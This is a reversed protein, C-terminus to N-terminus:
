ENRSDLLEVIYDELDYYVTGYISAEKVEAQRENCPIKIDNEALIEEFKDLIKVALERNENMRYKHRKNVVWNKIFIVLHIIGFLSIILIIFITLDILYKIDILM